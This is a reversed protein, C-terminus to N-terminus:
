SRTGDRIGKGFSVFVRNLLVDAVLGKVQKTVTRVRRELVNNQVRSLLVHGHGVGPVTTVVLLDGREVARERTGNLRSTRGRVEVNRAISSAVEAVTELTVRSRGGSPGVSERGLSRRLRETHSGRDVGM